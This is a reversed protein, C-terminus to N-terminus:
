AIPAPRHTPWQRALAARGRRWLPRSFAILSAFALALWSLPGAGAVPAPAADATLTFSNTNLPEGTSQQLCANYDSSCSYIGYAYGPESAGPNWLGEVQSGTPDVFLIGPFDVYGPGNNAPFLLNDSGFLTGFNSSPSLVTLSAFPTGNFSGNTIGTVTYTGTAVTGSTLNAVFTGTFFGSGVNFTFDYTQAQAQAGGLALQAGVLSILLLFLRVGRM